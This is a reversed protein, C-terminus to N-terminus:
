VVTLVLQVHDVEQVTTGNILVDAQRRQDVNVV